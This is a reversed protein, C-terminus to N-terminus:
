NQQEIRQDMPITVKLFIDQNSCVQISQYTKNEKYRVKTAPAFPCKPRVPIHKQILLVDASKLYNGKCHTYIANIIIKILLM